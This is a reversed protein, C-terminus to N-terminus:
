KIQQLLVQAQDRSSFDAYKELLSRLQEKAQAQEGIAVLAAAHHYIIDPSNPMLSLASDILKYAQETKKNKLLIWGYTDMVEPREPKLRYAKEAYEVARPDNLESYVWALNNLISVNAPFQTLMDSYMKIAKQPSGSDLYGQAVLLKVDLDDPHDNLWNNLLKSYEDQKNAKNYASALKIVLAKSKNQELAKSYSQIAQDYNGERFYIEGDLIELDKSDPYKEKLKNLNKRADDFKGENLAINVTAVLAQFNDPAQELVKEMSTKAAPYDGTLLQTIGLEYFAQGSTPLLQTVSQLTKLAEENMGNLRQAQGLMLLVTPNNQDLAVAENMIELTNKADGRTYYYRALILRPVLSKPNYTRAQELLDIAEKQNGKKLEINALTVLADVNNKDIKLIEKLKEEAADTNEDQLDLRALNMRASIYKPQIKLAKEFQARAAAKDGLGLYAAGALNNPLPNDPYKEEMAKATELAKKYDKERLHAMVLLLDARIFKPNIELTSELEEIAQSTAGSELHGMALQTRINAANPDLAVAQELYKEGKDMEGKGLYASGLLAYLQADKYRTVAQEMLNIAEDANGGKLDLYALLKISPLHDPIIANFRQLYEITQENNGQKYLVQSLLLLSNPEDPINKIISQLLDKARELNNKKYAIYARFYRAMPHNPVRSEIAKIPEMAQDFKGQTLLVRIYGTLADYNYKDLAYAKSYDQEAQKTNENLMAIQGLLTWVRVDDPALEKAKETVSAAEDLERRSLALRGQGLRADVSSPNVKLAEDFMDQAEKAQGQNLFVLGRISYVKDANSKANDINTTKDLIEQYKRQILLSQLLATDLEQESYNLSQAQTLEKEASAGDGMRLYTRGLLWRAEGLKSDKQLANKLEIIASTLDNGAIYTKASALYEEPSKGTILDCGSIVIMLSIFLYTIIRSGPYNILESNIM